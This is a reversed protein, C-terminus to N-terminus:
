AYYMSSLTDRISYDPPEGILATLRSNSGILRKIDNARVFEPNTKVTINYGAIENMIEIVQLLRLPRGSCINVTEGAADSELLRRYVEVVFRVDSIDRIVDLNGLEISARKDRYHSVIKPILFHGAQGTGTYNFPRTIMIPLRDMYTRALYEMALKSNAYHSVPAPCVSEDITVRDVNGYVNSTSAIVVKDVAPAVALVAELLNLTGLLNIQYIGAVDGHPVFTIAALHVIYDPKVKDIAQQLAAPSTLNGNHQKEGTANRSLGYTDYGHHSLHRLLHQGTFGSAGTILVRKSHFDKTM